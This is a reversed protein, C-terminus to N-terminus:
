GGLKKIRDLLAQEDVIDDSAEDTEKVDETEMSKEDEPMMEDENLLGEDPHNINSNILEDAKPDDSPKMGLISRFENKTMIENRTFKDAIEALNDVPVLKFPDKFYRIAQGQTVATDSLFKRQYEETIATLIPALATNQYNLNQKEDATGDLITQSMGLQAFIEAQVDKAQQWLNNELSRNLQTIKETGDIYAIGYQSGTLQAEIKKRREEAQLQKAPSKTIYPLQIILDMKGASNQENTKDVQNLIRRLRQFASNPENMIAYFPNEIIAVMNKPLIKEVKKGTDERYIRLKVHKPYWEIIKAVRLEYIDYSESKLPNGETLVPVVAVCGEDFLSLVLDKTLARGTQDLNANSTLANNLYSDIDEKYKKNEDLRVHRIDVMSVDTAIRNYITTIISRENGRTLITRDPRYSYGPGVDTFYTVSDTPDRGLFANWSNKLRDKFTAM